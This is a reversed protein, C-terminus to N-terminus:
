AQEDVMFNAIRVDQHLGSYNKAQGCCIDDDNRLAQYM